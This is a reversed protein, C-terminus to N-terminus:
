VNKGFGNNRKVNHRTLQTIFTKIWTSIEDRVRRTKALIEEETGEFKSPDDFGNHITKEGPFFPCSERAHDCVTVIYDFNEDRFESISKSRHKTIVIGVEEMVKIAYPNVETPEIGASQAEYRDGYHSNLFAEAM